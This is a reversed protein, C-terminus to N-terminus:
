EHAHTLFVGHIREANRLLYSFDPHILDVGLDEYPFATGCDVVMIGDQQEVALCNMGIEGLGGLPVIRVNDPSVKTGCPRGAAYVSRPAPEVASAVPQHIRLEPAVSWRVVVM